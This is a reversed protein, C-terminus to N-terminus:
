HDCIRHEAVMYMYKSELQRELAHNEMKNVQKNKKRFKAKKKLVTM